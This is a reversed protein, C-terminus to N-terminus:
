PTKESKGLVIAISSGCSCNRIELREVGDDLIGRCSLKSWGEATYAIGCSCRKLIRDAQIGQLSAITEEAIEAAQELGRVFGKAGPVGEPDVPAVSWWWGPGSATGLFSVRARYGGRVLELEIPVWDKHM